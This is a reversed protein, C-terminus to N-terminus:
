VLSIKELTKHNGRSVVHKFICINMEFFLYKKPGGLFTTSESKRCKSIYEIIFYKSTFDVPNGVLGDQLPSVIIAATDYAKAKFPSGEVESDRYEVKIMHDGISM